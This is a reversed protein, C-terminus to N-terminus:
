QYTKLVVTSYAKDDLLRAYQKKRVVYKKGNTVIISTNTPTTTYRGQLDVFTNATFHCGKKTDTINSAEEYEQMLEDIVSVRENLKNVAEDIQTKFNTKGENTYKTKHIAM